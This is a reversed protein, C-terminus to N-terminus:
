GKGAELKYTVFSNSSLHQYNDAREKVNWKWKTFGKWCGAFNEYFNFSGVM